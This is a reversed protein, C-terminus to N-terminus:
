KFNLSLTVWVGVNEGKLKAAKYKAKKVADISAQRLEEHGKLIITKTAKGNEDIYVKIYVKGAIGAKKAKKPYKPKIGSKLQPPVDFKTKKIRTRSSIPFVKSDSIFGWYGHYNTAWCKENPFFKYVYAVSDQPIVIGTKDSACTPESRMEFEDTIRAMIPKREKLEYTSVFDDKVTSYLDQDKQTSITDQNQALSVIGWILLLLLTAKKM